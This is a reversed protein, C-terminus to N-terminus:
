RSIAPRTLRRHRRSTPFRRRTQSLQRHAPEAVPHVARRQTTTFTLTYTGNSFAADLAPKTTFDQAFELNSDEPFQRLLTQSAGGPVQVSASVVSDSEVGRISSLFAFGTTSQSPAGASLQEFVQGKAGAIFNRVEQNTSVAATDLRVDDLAFRNGLSNLTGSGSISELVNLRVREFINTVFGPIPLNTLVTGNMSFSYTGAPYNIIFVNTMFKGAQSAWSGIQIPHIDSASANNTFAYVQGGDNIFILPNNSLNTETGNISDINTTVIDIGIGGIHSATKTAEIWLKFSLVLSENTLAGGIQDGRYDNQYPLTGLRFFARTSGLFNSAM